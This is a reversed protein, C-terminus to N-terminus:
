NGLLSTVAPYGMFGLFGFLMLGVPVGLKSSKSEADSQLESLEKARAAEARAVLTETVRAGSAGALTLASALEILPVVNLDRGLRELATWPSSGSLVAEDLRERIHDFVWGSGMSTADELATAIGGGGSISSGLLTIYATLARSFEVRRQAAKNKLDIDFVNYGVVAGAVLAVLMGMPGSVIGFMWGLAVALGAGGGATRLKEIAAHELDIGAVLVDSQFDELADGKVTELVTLALAGWGAGEDIRVLNADADFAALRRGLTPKPPLYGHLVVVLGLALMAGALAALM